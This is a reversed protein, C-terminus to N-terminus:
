LHIARKLTRQEKKIFALPFKEFETAAKQNV